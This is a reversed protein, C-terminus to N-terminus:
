WTFRATVSLPVGGKVVGPVKVIVTFGAGAIGTDPPPPPPLPRTCSIQGFPSVEGEYESPMHESQFPIGCTTRTSFQSNVPTCPLTSWSV